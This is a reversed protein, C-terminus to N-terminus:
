TTLIADMGVSGARFINPLVSFRITFLEKAGGTATVKVIVIYDTEPAGAKIWPIISTTTYTHKLEDLVTASANAGDATVASVDIASITDGNLWSSIDVSCPWEAWVPKADPVNFDRSGETIM